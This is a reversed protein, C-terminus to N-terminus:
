AAFRRTGSAGDSTLRRDSWRGVAFRVAMICMLLGTAAVREKSDFALQIVPFAFVAVRIGTSFDRAWSVLALLAVGLVAPLPTIM